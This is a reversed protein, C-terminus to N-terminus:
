ESSKWPLERDPLLATEPGASPPLFSFPSQQAPLSPAPPDTHPPRSFVTLVEQGVGGGLLERSDSSAFFCVM